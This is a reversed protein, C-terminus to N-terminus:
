NRRIIKKDVIDRQIKDRYQASIPMKIDGELTVTEREIATVFRNNILFSRHIRSFVSPPLQQEFNRLAAVVTHVQGSVTHVQVYNELSKLYIVENYRLKVNTHHIKIFFYEEEEKEYGAALAQNAEFRLRVKEVCKMFRDLEVPKVLFDTASIEFGQVAYQTQESVFVILPPKELSRIFKVSDLEPLDINSVVLDVEGAAIHPYAKLTSSFTGVLQLISTAQVFRSLLDLWKPEKDIVITRIKM